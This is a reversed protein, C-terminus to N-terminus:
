AHRISPDKDPRHLELQTEVRDRMRVEESRHGAADDRDQASGVDHTRYPSGKSRLWRRLRVATYNDLARFARNVTRVNFYNAWGLLTRNLQGVLETTEQGTGARDTLAHIKEVARKISKESPRQELRAQGTRASYMRGFTSSAKRSKCIRTKDESVTLKLEGMIERLHDSAV